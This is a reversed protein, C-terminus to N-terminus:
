IIGWREQDKLWVYRETWPKWINETYRVRRGLHAQTLLNQYEEGSVMIAGMRMMHPTEQQCDLLCAQRMVLLSVLGVLAFRSAESTKHFMSEGFFGRSLGVGYLGGVLDGDRWVEVSHAYGLEHLRCYAKRMDETIWTGKEGSRPQACGDIVESFARDLSLEFNAHKIARASRKPLVFRDLPLICRPALSWWLIPEENFWPFIGLSYAAILREPLLDGGWCIVGNM